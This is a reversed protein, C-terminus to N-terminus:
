MKITDIINERVTGTDVDDTDEVDAKEDDTELKNSATSEVGEIYM